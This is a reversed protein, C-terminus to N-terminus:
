VSAKLARYIRARERHCTRCKRDGSHRYTNEETYEHGKYCHTREANYRALGVPRGKTAGARSNRGKRVMDRVNEQQTGLFLHEPRVCGPNDCKHCVCLGAPIEGFSLIWSLRHALMTRKTAFGIVGYGHENKYANWEHCVHFPIFEVKEFFRDILEKRAAV